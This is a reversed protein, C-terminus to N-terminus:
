CIRLSFWNNQSFLICLSFLPAFWLLLRSTRTGELQQGRQASASGGAGGWHSVPGAGQSRPAAARERRRPRPRRPGETRLVASLRAAASVERASPAQPACAPDPSVASGRPLPVCACGRAGVRQAHALEVAGRGLFPGRPLSGLRLATVEGSKKRVSGGTVQLDRLASEESM